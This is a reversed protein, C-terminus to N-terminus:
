HNTQSDRQEQINIKVDADKKQKETEEILIKFVTNADIGEGLMQRWKSKDNYLKICIRDLFIKEDKTLKM